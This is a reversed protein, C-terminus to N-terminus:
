YSASLILLGALSFHNMKMNLKLRLGHLGFCNYLVQPMTCSLLSDAPCSQKCGQLQMLLLWAKWCGQMCIWISHVATLCTCLTGRLVRERCQMTQWKQAHMSMAGNSIWSHASDVCTTQCQLVGQLLQWLRCCTYFLLNLSLSSSLSSGM